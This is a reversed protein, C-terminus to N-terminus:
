RSVSSPRLATLSAATIHGGHQASPDGQNQKGRQHPEQRPPVGCGRRLTGVRLALHVDGCRGSAAVITISDPEDPRVIWSAPSMITYLINPM